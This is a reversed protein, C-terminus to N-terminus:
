RPSRPSRVHSRWWSSGTSSGTSCNSTPCRTEAYPKRVDLAIGHLAAATAIAGPGEFDVHQVLAWTM